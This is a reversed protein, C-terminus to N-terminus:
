DEERARYVAARACDLADHVLLLPHREEKLRSIYASADDDPLALLDAVIKDYLLKEWSPLADYCFPERTFLPLDAGEKRVSERIAAAGRECWSAVADLAAEISEAEIGTVEMAASIKERSLNLKLTLPLTVTTRGNSHAADYKLTVVKERHQNEEMQMATLNLM